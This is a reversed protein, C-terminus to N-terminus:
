AKVTSDSAGLAQLLDAALSNGTPGICSTVFGFGLGDDPRACGISGGWGSHGFAGPPLPNHGPVPLAIGLGFRVLGGGVLNEGFSREKCMDLVSEERLLPPTTPARGQSLNAYITSIGRATTHANSSPIEARRWRTTNTISVPRAPNNNAMWEMYEPSQDADPCPQIAVGEEDVLTAIDLGDMDESLGIYFEADLPGAIERAIFQGVTTGTVRRVLEGCLWGFTAAHYGVKTGPQWWLEEEALIQAMREFDFLWETPVPRRIAPLGATHSLVQEITVISKGCCAFEPWYDCVPARLDIRGREALMNLAIAVVGKGVSYVSAHTDQMWLRQGAEDAQGICLNVLHKSGSTVAVAAGCKGLRHANKEQTNKLGIFRPDCHGRAQLPPTTNTM